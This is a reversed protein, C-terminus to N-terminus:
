KMDIDTYRYMSSECGRKVLVGYYFLQEVVTALQSKERRYYGEQDFAWDILAEKGQSAVEMVKRSRVKRMIMPIWQYEYPQKIDEPCLEITDHNILLERVFGEFEEISSYTEYKRTYCECLQEGTTILLYCTTDCRVILPFVYGWRASMLNENLIKESPVPLQCEQSQLSLPFLLLTLLNAVLIMKNM